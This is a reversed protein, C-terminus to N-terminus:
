MQICLSFPLEQVSLRCLPPDLDKVLISTDYMDTICHIYALSRCVWQEHVAIHVCALAIRECVGSFAIMFPRCFNCFVHLKCTVTSRVTRLCLLGESIQAQVRQVVRNESHRTLPKIYFGTHTLTRSKLMNFDKKGAACPKSPKDTLSHVDSPTVFTILVLGAM